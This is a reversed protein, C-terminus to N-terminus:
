RAAQNEFTESKPLILAVVINSRQSPFLVSRALRLPDPGCPDEKRLNFRRFLECRIPASFRGRDRRSKSTLWAEFVWPNPDSGRTFGALYRLDDWNGVRAARGCDRNVRETPSIAAGRYFVAIVVGTLLVGCLIMFGIPGKSAKAM